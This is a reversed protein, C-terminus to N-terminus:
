NLWEPASTSIRLLIIPCYNHDTQDAAFATLQFTHDPSPQSMTDRADETGLARAETALPRMYLPLAICLQQLM